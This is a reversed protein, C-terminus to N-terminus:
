STPVNQFRHCIHRIPLRFRCLKQRYIKFENTCNQRAPVWCKFAMSDPESVVFLSVFRAVTFRGTLLLMGRAAIFTDRGWCRWMGTSFHPLGAAM